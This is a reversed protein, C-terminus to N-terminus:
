IRGPFLRADLVKKSTPDFDCEYIFGQYAGFQNQVEIKDGIFTIKGTSQDIWRIRSFKPELFGDTWRHSFNPMREIARVCPLSADYLTRESWCQIDKMCEADSIKPQTPQETKQEQKPPAATQQDSERNNNALKAFLFMLLLSGAVIGFIIRFLSKIIGTPNVKTPVPAGCNPCIKAKTSIDKGCEKCKILAMAFEQNNGMRPRHGHYPWQRLLGHQAEPV